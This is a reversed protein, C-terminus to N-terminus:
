IFAASAYRLVSPFNGRFRLEQNFTLFFASTVMKIFKNLFMNIQKFAIGNDYGVRFPIGSPIGDM